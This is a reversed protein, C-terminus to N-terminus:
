ASSPMRSKQRDRPSPSTYLLCSLGTYTIDATRNLSNANKRHGNDTDRIFTRVGEIPDGASDSFAYEASKFIRLVGQQRNNGVGSKPMFRLNTGNESNNVIYTKPGGDQSDSGLDTYLDINKSADLDTLTASTPGRALQVIQGEISEFKAIPPLIRHSVQFGDVIM